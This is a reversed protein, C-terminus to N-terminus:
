GKQQRPKESVAREAPWGRRLRDLIMEKSIGSERAWGVATLTKGFATITKPAPKSYRRGWGWSRAETM